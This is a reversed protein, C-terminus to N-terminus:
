EKRYVHVQWESLSSFDNLSLDGYISKHRLGAKCVEAKLDDADLLATVFIHRERRRMHAIDLLYSRTGQNRNEDIFVDMTLTGDETAIRDVRAQDRCDCDNKVYFVFIGGRHLARAVNHFLTERAKACLVMSLTNGFCLVADASEDNFRHSVFDDCILRARDGWKELRKAAVDIMQQMGDIGVVNLGKSCLVDLTRGVGCGLDIVSHCGELLDIIALDAFGFLRCYHDTLLM